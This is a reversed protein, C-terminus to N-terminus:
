EEACIMGVPDDTWLHQEGDRVEVFIGAEGGENWIFEHSNTCTYTRDHFVIKLQYTYPPYTAQMWPDLEVKVSWQDYTVPFGEYVTIKTDSVFVNPNDTACNPVCAPYTSWTVTAPDEYDWSSLTLQDMEELPTIAEVSIHAAEGVTTSVPDVWLTLSYGLAGESDSMEAPMINIRTQIIGFNTKSETNLTLVPLTANIWDAAEEGDSNTSTAWFLRFMELVFGMEEESFPQRVVVLFQSRVLSYGISTTDIQMEMDYLDGDTIRLVLRGNTGAREEDGFPETFQFGYPKFNKEIWAQSGGLEPSVIVNSSSPQTTQTALPRSQTQKPPITSTVTEPISVGGCGVLVIVLLIPVIIKFQTM